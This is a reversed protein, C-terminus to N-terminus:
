KKRRNSDEYILTLSETQSADFVEVEEERKKMQDVVSRQQTVIERIKGVCNSEKLANRSAMITYYQNVFKMVREYFMEGTLDVEPDFNAFKLFEDFIAEKEEPTIKPNSIYQVKYAEPKSFDMPLSRYLLVAAAIERDDLMKYFLERLISGYAKMGDLYKQYAGDYEEKAKVEFAEKNEEKAQITGKKLARMLPNKRKLEELEDALKAREMGTSTMVKIFAKYDSEVHSYEINLRVLPLANSVTLGMKREAEEAIRREHACNAKEEFLREIESVYGDLSSLGKSQERFSAFYYFRLYKQYDELERDTAEVKLIRQVLEDRTGKTSEGYQMCIDRLDEDTMKKLEDVISLVKRVNKLLEQDPM